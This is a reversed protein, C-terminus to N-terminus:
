EVNVNIALTAITSSHPVVVLLHSTCACLLVLVAGHVYGTFGDNLVM